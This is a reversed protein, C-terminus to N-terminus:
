FAVAPKLSCYAVHLMQKGLERGDQRCCLETNENKKMIEKLKEEGGGGDGMSETVYQTLHCHGPLAAEGEELGRGCKLTM